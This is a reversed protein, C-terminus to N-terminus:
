DPKIIMGCASAAILKLNVSAREDEFFEAVSLHQDGIGDHEADHQHQERRDVDARGDPQDCREGEDYPKKVDVCYVLM